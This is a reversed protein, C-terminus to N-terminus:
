FDLNRRFEKPTTGILKRFNREFTTLSGFGNQLAIELLSYNKTNMMTIAKLMRYRILLQYFTLNTTQCFLANLHNKNVGSAKAAIELRLFPDAYDREILQWTRELRRVYNLKAIVDPLPGSFLKEEIEQITKSEGM